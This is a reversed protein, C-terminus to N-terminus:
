VLALLAHLFGLCSRVTVEASVAALALLSTFCSFGLKTPATTKEDEKINEDEKIDEKGANDQDM